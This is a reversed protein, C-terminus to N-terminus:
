RKKKRDIVDGVSRRAAVELPNMAYAHEGAAWSALYGCLYIPLFLLGLRAYQTVHHLEHNILETDHIRTVVIVNGVTHGGFGKHWANYLWKPCKEFVPTYVHALLPTGVTEIKMVFRYWGFLRFTRVYIHGAAIYLGAWIYILTKKM